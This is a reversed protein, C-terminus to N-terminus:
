SRSSDIRAARRRLRFYGAAALGLALLLVFIQPLTPVASAIAMSYAREFFCGSADTVRITFNAAGATTPTGALV